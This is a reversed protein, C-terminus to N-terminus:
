GGVGHAREGECGGQYSWAVERDNAHEHQSALAANERVAVANWSRSLFLIMTNDKQGSEDLAKLVEGVADDARRVSNYYLVLEERFRRIM